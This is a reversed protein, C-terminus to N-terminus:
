YSNGSQRFSISDNEISIRIRDGIIGHTVYGFNGELIEGDSKEVIVQFHDDRTYVITYERQEGPAFNEITWTSDCVAVTVSTCVIDSNNEILILNECPRCGTVALLVVASVLLKKM